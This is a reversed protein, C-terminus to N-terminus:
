INITQISLSCVFDVYGFNMVEYICKRKLFNNVHDFKKVTVLTKMINLAQKCNHQMLKCKIVMEKLPIIVFRKGETVRMISMMMIIIIKMMMMLNMKMTTVSTTMIIMIMTM